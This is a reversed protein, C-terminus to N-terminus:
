SSLLPRYASKVRETSSGVNHKQLSNLDLGAALNSQLQGSIWGTQCETYWEEEFVLMIEFNKVASSVNSDVKLFNGLMWLTLPVTMITYDDLTMFLHVTHKQLCLLIVHFDGASRLRFQKWTSKNAVQHRHQNVFLKDESRISIM